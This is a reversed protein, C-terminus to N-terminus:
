DERSAALMDMAAAYPDVERAMVRDLLGALRGDLRGAFRTRVMDEAIKLIRM